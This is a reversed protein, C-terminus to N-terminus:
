VAATYKFMPATYKSSKLKLSVACHNNTEYGVTINGAAPNGIQIMREFAFFRFKGFSSRLKSGNIGDAIIKRLRNVSFTRQYVLVSTKIQSPELKIKGENKVHNFYVKSIPEQLGLDSASGEIIGLNQDAILQLSTATFLRTPQEVGNGVGSYSKGYIPCQDLSELNDTSDEITRNQIKMSSKLYLNVYAQSLDIRVPARDTAQGVTNVSPVFSFYMLTVNPLALAAATSYFYQAIIEPTDTTATLPYQIPTALVGDNTQYVCTFLDGVSINDVKEDMDKPCFGQRYMVEKVICRWFNKWVQLFSGANHGVWMSQATVGYEKGVEETSAIGSRYLKKNAKKARGKSKIKGGLKKRQRVKAKGDRRKKDVAMPASGSQRALIAALQAESVPTVTAKKARRRRKYPTGGM